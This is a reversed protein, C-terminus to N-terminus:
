LIIGVSRNWVTSVSYVMSRSSVPPMKNISMRCVPPMKNGNWKKEELKWKIIEIGEIGEKPIEIGLTTTVVNCTRKLNSTM